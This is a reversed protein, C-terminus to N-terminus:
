KKLFGYEYIKPEIKTALDNLTLRLNALLDNYHSDESKANLKGQKGNKSEARGQFYEKIDYLSADNLYKESSKAQEHYYRWLELGANFVAKAESSFTIKENPIFCDCLTGNKVKGEIFRTMFDSRFAEKAGVEQESFPIFHNIDDKSTIKNQGEDFLAYALCDNYFEKDKQWKNKPYLFNDKNNLWSPSIVQRVAFYVCFPILNYKTIPTYIIHATGKKSQLAIHNNQQFDPADAMLIGLSENDKDYFKQLWATIYKEGAYFTKKGIKKNSENFIDVKVKFNDVKANKTEQKKGLNWVWFGIPFEGAVNDFTWAPVIFGKLFKALFRQRFKTSTYSNIYKPTSFSGLICNPIEEYIRIFFQTYLEDSLASLHKKYKFYTDTDKSVQSKHSGTGRQTRANGSTSYPPNIFIVLKQPENKIIEQLSQPLKSKALIEGSKEDVKDFIEDNLFDFQFIHSELLNAGNQRREQMVEADASDLTSAYINRANTLGALLNGTGAACDWIYYEEQWDEGLADALYEQAKTVWVRPTFFAGKRERIDQPVLLDRRQIIYDWFEEKPPREYINWFNKHADQKDTFGFKTFSFQTRKLDRAELKVEYYDHQLLIRLNEYIEKTSNNRSLLDALYFDSDVIDPKEAEWDVSITPKVRKLWELYINFFNNKTINIKQTGQSDLTFNDEIFERLEDSQSAFRFLLNECELTKVILKYLQKFEKSEHNSPTVSWNFDNQSFIHAIKSFEIFAIKQADFAGLFHPPMLLDQLKAKGITLILQVISAYIDNKNGKKAEAWLFYQKEQEHQRKPAIVFDINNPRETTDFSGFFDRAVKNKLEEEPITVDYM